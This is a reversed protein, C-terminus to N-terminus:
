MKKLPDNAYLLTDTSPDMSALTAVAGFVIVSLGVSSWFVIQFMESDMVVACFNVPLSFFPLSDVSPLLSCNSYLFSHLVILCTLRTLLSQQGATSLPLFHLENHYSTSFGTTAIKAANCLHGSYSGANYFLPFISHHFRISCLLFFPFRQNSKRM